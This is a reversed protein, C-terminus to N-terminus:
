KASQLIIFRAKEVPKFNVTIESSGDTSNIVAATRWNKGNDSLGVFLPRKNWHQKRKNEYLVLSAIARPQRLDVYWYPKEELNSLFGSGTSRNGDVAKGSNNFTLFEDSYFYNPYSERVIRSTMTPKGYALNVPERDDRNHWAYASGLNDGNYLSQYWVTFVAIGIAVAIVAGTANFPKRLAIVSFYIGILAISLCTVIMGGVAARSRYRFEIRSTGSQVKVAHAAGNARYVPVNRGDVFATWRGSYPYALTFFGDRSVDVTFELRNYSSYSLEIVDRSYGSDPPTSNWTECDPCGEIIVQHPRRGMKILRYDDEMDTAPIANTYFKALYPELHTQKVHQLVTRSYLGSGPLHRYNLDKKKENLFTSFPDTETKPVIWTGFALLFSVQACVFLGLLIAGFSISRNSNKLLAFVFIGAVGATMATPELWPPINRIATASYEAHDNNITEPLILYIGIAVIAFAALIEKSSLKFERGVMIITTSEKQLVWTLLLLFLLPLILSLRGPIRVSSALPFYKWMLYHVSTRPGQMHLFVLLAVGWICWIVGPIKIRFLRLLPVFAAVLFLSSSGFAGHVDSRLPHIFNNVTGWFTDVFSVAFNYDRGVRGANDALFEFYFPAIYVAALLIGALVSAATQVWFRRMTPFENQNVNPLTAVFYPLVLVFLAAGCLSYYMMQPHGSCVLWYTSCIILFQSKFPTPRLYHSGITSFLFIFGTWSELSAGYRFLDLMRLNYVTIISLVFAAATGVKLCRLFFFLSFQALGLSLLRLFTNWELAKGNWYDPLISAIYSIPHYIQSLTLASSSQGGSFGPVFLPFSGTKISFMLELQHQIPFMAYDNGLTWPSVFPCLWFMLVFPLILFIVGRWIGNRSLSPQRGIKRSCCRYEM